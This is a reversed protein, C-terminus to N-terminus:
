RLNLKEEAYITNESQLRSNWTACKGLKPLLYVKYCMKSTRRLTSAVYEM